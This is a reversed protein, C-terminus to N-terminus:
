PGATAVAAAVTTPCTDGMFSGIGYMIFFFGSCVMFSIGIALGAKPGPKNSHKFKKLGAFVGVFIAGICMIGFLGGILGQNDNLIKLIARPIAAFFNENFTANAIILHTIFKLIGFSVIAIFILLTGIVMGSPTSKIYMMFGSFVLGLLITRIIFHIKTKVALDKNNKFIVYYIGAILGFLISLVIMMVMSGKLKTETMKELKVVPLIVKSEGDIDGPRCTLEMNPGLGKTFNKLSKKSQKIADRIQKKIEQSDQNSLGEIVPKEGSLINQSASFSALRCHIGNEVNFSHELLLTNSVTLDDLNHIASIPIPTTLVYVSGNVNTLCDAEIANAALEDLYISVPKEGLLTNSSAAIIDDISSWQANKTKKLLFTLYIPTGYNTSSVHEIVMEADYETAVNMSKRFIYLNTTKFKELQPYTIINPDVLSKPHQFPLKIFGGSKGTKEFHTLYLPISYYHTILEPNM